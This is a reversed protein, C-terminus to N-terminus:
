KYAVFHYRKCHFSPVPMSGTQDTYVAPGENQNGIAANVFLELEVDVVQPPNFDKEMDDLKKKAEKLDKAIQEKSPKTTSRIGKRTCNMHGKATATSEL